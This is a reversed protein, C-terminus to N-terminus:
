KAFLLSSFVTACELKIHSKAQKVSWQLEEMKIHQKVRESRILIIGFSKGWTGLGLVIIIIHDIKRVTM